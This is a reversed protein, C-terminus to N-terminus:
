APYYGKIRERTKIEGIIKLKTTQELVQEHRLNLRACMERLSIGPREVILDLVMKERASMMNETVDITLPQSVMPLPYIYSNHLIRDDGVDLRVAGIDPQMQYYAKSAMYPTQAQWCPTLLGLQSEYELFVFFHYHGRIIMDARKTKGCQAAALAFFNTKDLMTSRYQAPQGGGHYFNLNKGKLVLDLPYNAIYVGNFAEAIGKEADEYRVNHYDTGQLFFPDSKVCRVIPRLLEICADRQEDIDTTYLERGYKAAGIGDICDGVHVMIDVPDTSLEGILRDWYVNLQESIDTPPLRQNTPAKGIYGRPWISYKSGVHTDGLVLISM